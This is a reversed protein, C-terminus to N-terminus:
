RRHEHEDITRMFMPDDDADTVDLLRAGFASEQRELERLEKMEWQRRAKKNKHQGPMDSLRKIGRDRVVPTNAPEHPFSDGWHSKRADTYVQKGQRKSCVYRQITGDATCADLTVHGSRKIPKQVLRPWSAAELRMASSAQEAGITVQTLVPPDSMLQLTPLERRDLTGRKTQAAAFKDDDSMRTGAGLFDLEDGEQLRPMLSSPRKGRRVVVYSFPVYEENRASGRAQRLFTPRQVAHTLARALSVRWTRKQTFHCFDVQRLLPCEGDHPCPAVVHSGVANIAESGEATYVEGDVIITEAPASAGGDIPTSAGLELLQRRAEIISLYGTATGREILVIVEAESRWMHSVLQARAEASGVESLTFASVAITTQAEGFLSRGARRGDSATVGAQIITTPLSLPALLDASIELMHKSSDIGLYDGLSPWAEKAAWAVSGTGSGWDVLRTPTWPAVDGTQGGLRRAVESLVYKAASYAQPMLGLAYALATSASYGTARPGTLKREGRQRLTRVLASSMSAQLRQRAWMDQAEQRVQQRDAGRLKEVVADQLGKPLVILGIRAKGFRAAESLRDYSESEDEDSFRDWNVPEDHDSQRADIFLDEFSSRDSVAASSWASRRSLTLSGALRRSCLRSLMCVGTTSGCLRAFGPRAFDRAVVRPAQVSM